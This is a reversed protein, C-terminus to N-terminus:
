FFGCSWCCKAVFGEEEEEEELNYYGAWHYSEAM